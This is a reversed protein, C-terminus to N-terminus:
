RSGDDDDVYDVDGDDDDVFFLMMVVRMALLTITPGRMLIM